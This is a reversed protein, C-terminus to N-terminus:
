GSSEGPEPPDGSEDGADRKEENAALLQERGPELMAQVGLLGAGAGRVLANGLGGGHKGQEEYEKRSMSRKRGLAALGAFILVALILYPIIAM